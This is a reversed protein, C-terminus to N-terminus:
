VSCCVRLAPACGFRPALARSGWFLGVVVAAAGAAERAAQGVFGAEQLAAVCLGLKHQRMQDLAAVSLQREVAQQAQQVQELQQIQQQQSLWQQQQHSAGYVSLLDAQQQRERAAQDAQLWPPSCMCTHVSNAPLCPLNCCCPSCTFLFGQGCWMGCAAPAAAIAAWCPCSALGALCAVAHAPAISPTLLATCAVRWGVELRREEQKREHWAQRKAVEM